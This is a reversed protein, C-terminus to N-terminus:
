KEIFIASGEISYQYMEKNDENDVFIIGETPSAMVVTCDFDLINTNHCMVYENDILEVKPKNKPEHAIAYVKTGRLSEYDLVVQKLDTFPNVISADCINAKVGNGKITHIQKQMDFMRDIFTPKRNNVFNSFLEEMPNSPAPNQITQGLTAPQGMDTFQKRTKALNSLVEQKISHIIRALHNSTAKDM